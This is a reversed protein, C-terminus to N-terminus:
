RRSRLILAPNLRCSRSARRRINTPRSFMGKRSQEELGPLIAQWHGDRWAWNQISPIPPARSRMPPFSHNVSTHSPVTLRQNYASDQLPVRCSMDPPETACPTIIIEPIAFCPSDPSPSRRRRSTRSSSATPVDRTDLVTSVSASSHLLDDESDCTSLIDLEDDEMESSTQELDSFLKEICKVDDSLITQINRCAYLSNGYLSAARRWNDPIHFVIDQLLLDINVTLAQKDDDETHSSLHLAEHSGISLRALM